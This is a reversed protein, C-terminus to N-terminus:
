GSNALKTWEQVSALPPDYGMKKGKKDTGIIWCFGSGKENLSKKGFQFLDLPVQDMYFRNELPYLGYNCSGKEQCQKAVRRVILRQASDM